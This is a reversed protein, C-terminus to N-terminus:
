QVLMPMLVLRKLPRLGDQFVIPRNANEFEMVVDDAFVSALCINLFNGKAGISLTNGRLMNCDVKDTSASRFDIDQGELIITNELVNIKVLSTEKNAFLSVRNVASMLADKNVMVATPHNPIIAKFNPYNGEVKRCTLVTDHTIFEFNKNDICMTVESNDNLISMLPAFARSSLVAEIDVYDAFNLGDIKDTYLKHADTACVEISSSTIHMYLGNMVIRFEDTSVFNRGVGIWEKLWDSSLVFSNSDGANGQSINPFADSETIPMEMKGSAHSISLTTADIHLSVDEGNLSKLAKILDSGSICFEGVDDASIVNCEKCISCELDFSQVRLLLHGVTIKTLGLIPMSKAKGAMVGGISLANIFEKRNVTINM